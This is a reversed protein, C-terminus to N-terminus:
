NVYSLVERAIPADPDDPALELFRNLHERATATDGTNYLAMGLLYHARAEGPQVELVQRFAAIAGVMDGDNYLDVGHDYLGTSAWSPDANVLRVLAGQAAEVDGLARASDYAVQLAGVNSPDKELATAALEAARAPDGQSFAISGLVVYGNVLEPDLAVAEEFKSVAEAVNGERYTNVGENFVVVAAESGAGAARMAEAAEAAKEDDGMQRYADFRLQLALASSSDLELARECQAVATAFDGREHAVSALATYGEALDPDIEVAERFLQEAHDLDGEQRAVVGENYAKVARARGSIPQAAAHGAGQVPQMVIELPGTVDIPRIQHSSTQYGDKEFTYTYTLVTDIHAIIFKGKKNSTKTMSFDERAQTTVTITVGEIPNGSTDKVVGTVRAGQADAARIGVVFVVAFALSLTTRLQSHVAGGEAARFGRLLSPRRTTM